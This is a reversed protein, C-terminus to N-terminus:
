NQHILVGFPWFNNCHCRRTSRSCDIDEVFYESGMAKQFSRYRVVPCVESRSMKIFAFAKAKLAFAICYFM